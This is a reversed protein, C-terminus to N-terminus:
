IVETACVTERSEMNESSGGNEGVLPVIAVIRTGKGPNSEVSFTGRVSHVREQMSLLGLGRNRNAEEVDFGAGEDKVVLRIEEATGNIEVAFETVGSYKVSNHLAEQAVRFLCLSIDKPLRRPVSADTFEIRVEHQISFEKCFGRIAAVIGLYDLKSSHLQHSLSQVDGAIESCHKRIEALNQKQSGNQGRSAQDLEMSLLALRQCIDDHLDRAIRNREKEQAAILQGSVKYLAQQALKQDTTDIASGILGAFSGDGNVRPSAVDFMWRYVGDIRRLRYEKSFPQHTILSKSVTDSLKNLDDPHIYESWTDGYGAHLNPGTFALRRENLYTIQGKPDCMWILSPTTDAMVRFRRESERLFAEAKRKRARQWLLGVILLAQAIITAVAALIYKRGREWMTPERYLILTGPPLASESINWRRLQRWDLRIQHEADHVIPINDPQEGSLVRKALRAVLSIQRYGDFSDGGIGGLSLCYGESVCYTPLRQSIWALLDYTELAPHSSEQPALQFLVLTTRPLASVKEFLQSTSLGVLDIEKVKGEYRFLEAHIRALWYAEPESNGTIIAVTNTNPHLHLALEITSRADLPATVGTVGPWMQGAIREPVVDFFVIPVGPFLENRHRLAFQFAPYNEIIVLDLKVGGYTSILNEVLNKEYVQDGFRRGELNEVHFNMPWPIATRLGHKLDNFASFDQRNSFSYLVLVSKPALSDTAPAIRSLALFVLTFVMWKTERRAGAGFVLSCNRPAALNANTMVGESVINM